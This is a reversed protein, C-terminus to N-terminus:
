QPKKDEPKPEPRKEGQKPVNKAPPAPAPRVNPPPPTPRTAPPLPRQDPPVTRAPPVVPQPRVAPPAPKPEITTPPLPKPQAQPPPFKAPPQAPPRPPNAPTPALTGPRAPTVPPQNSPPVPRNPNPNPTPDVPAPTPQTPRVPAPAPNPAPQAPRTPVTQNPRGPAPTPAPAPTPQGATPRAPNPQIPNPQAPNPQAPNPHAPNPQAPNPQAPQGPTVQGPRAPNAVPSIPAVPKGGVTPTGIAAHGPIPRPAVPPTAKVPVPAPKANPAAPAALGQHNILVPRTEKVAVPKAVPRLIIPQAPPKVAPAAPQIHQVQSADVRVFNTKASHGAAFDEQRMAVVGSTRNVYTINTVNTVNVINVYTKQVHVVNTERINSINVRDIYQPSCPYWPRYPEGPGLPFWVSVGLGGVHIGGAFVVQAPSWVPRVERPGPIWGWRGGLQVWRGYHFPAAGWPEDAVWVWGYYPRNVWHGNRYPAWGAEVRPFWVPGYDSQPQWDGSNDLEDYGQMDPSVYRASISNFRHTEIAASWHEFADAGAPELPQTYVPNTGSLQISQGRYLTMNFNGAGNLVLEDSNNGVTIVTSQQDPYVDVRFNGRGALTMGGNPTSVFLSQGDQFGDSYINASGSAVGFEIGQDNLNTLTLDTGASFYARVRSTQIEGEGDQDTYVRDGPGLPQNNAAGGWSDVGDPQVSVNGQLHTLHATPPPVDSGNPPPYNQAPLLTAAFAMGAVAAALLLSKSRSRPLDYM